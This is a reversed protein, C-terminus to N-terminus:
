LIVSDLKVDLMTSVPVEMMAKASAAPASELFVSTPASAHDDQAVDAAHVDLTVSPGQVRYIQTARIVM